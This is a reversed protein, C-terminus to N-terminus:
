CADDEEASTTRTTARRGAPGRDLLREEVALDEALRERSIASAKGSFMLIKRIASTSIRTKASAADRHQPAQGPRDEERQAHERDDVGVEEAADRRDEDDVDEANPAGASWSEPTGVEGSKQPM